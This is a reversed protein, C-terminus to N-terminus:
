YLRSFQGISLRDAAALGGFGADSMHADRHALVAVDNVLCEVDPIDVSEV